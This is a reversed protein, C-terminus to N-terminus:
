KGGAKKHTVKKFGAPIEFLSAKQPGPKIKEFLTAVAGEPGKHVIKIPYKLDRDVWELVRGKKEDKYRYYIKDCLRGDVKETGMDRKEALLKPDIPQGSIPGLVVGPLELYQKRAPNVVWLVKKDGRSITMVLGAESLMDVRVKPGSVWIKGYVPKGDKSQFMQASFEAAQAVGALCLGLMLLLIILGHRLLKM